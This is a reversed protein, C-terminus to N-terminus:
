KNGECLHKYGCYTCANSPLNTPKPPVQQLELYKDSEEIKGILEQKMEDTVNLMFSKMELNDRDVYVFIVENLGFSISYATGQAYHELAVGKRMSWKYNNETKIELIYYHGKYRLIGDTMFSMNLFKHYLKTEMGSKERIELYDLGRSKVFDAVDIYECDMGNNKMDEIAQQVRVHIDTGSNCIQVNSYKANDPAPTAGSVQYYMNRVCKMSSPKYTKSPARVSKDATMEISRKLDGLFDVEPSLKSNASDILRCVNKLSTRAM